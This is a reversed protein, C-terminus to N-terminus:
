VAIPRWLQNYQHGEDLLKILHFLPLWVNWQCVKFQFMLLLPKAGNSVIRWSRGNTATILGLLEINFSIQIVINLIQLQSPRPRRLSVHQVGM